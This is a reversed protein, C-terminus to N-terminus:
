GEGGEKEGVNKIKRYTSADGGKRKGQGRAGRKGAAVQVDDGM